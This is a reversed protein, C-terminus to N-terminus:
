LEIMEPVSHLVDKKFLHFKQEEMDVVINIVHPEYGIKKTIKNILMNSILSYNTKDIVFQEDKKSEDKFYCVGKATKEKLFFDLVIKNIGLKGFRSNLQSFIITEIKM